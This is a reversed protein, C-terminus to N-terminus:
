TFFFKSRPLYIYIHHTLADQTNVIEEHKVRFICVLDAFIHFLLDCIINIRPVSSFGENRNCARHFTKIKRQNEDNTEPQRGVTHTGNGRM